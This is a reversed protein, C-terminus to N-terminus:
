TRKEGSRSEPEGHDLQYAAQTSTSVCKRFQLHWQAFYWPLYVALTGPAIVLFIASGIIAPARRM